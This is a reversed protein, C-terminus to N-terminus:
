ASATVERLAETLTDTFADSLDCIDKETLTTRNWAEEVLQNQDDPPWPFGLTAFSYASFIIVLFQLPSDLEKFPVHEAETFEQM